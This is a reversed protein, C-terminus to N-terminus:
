YVKKLDTIRFFEEIAEVIYWKKMDKQLYKSVKDYEKTVLYPIDFEQFHPVFAVNSITVVWGKPIYVFEMFEHLKIAIQENTMFEERLM